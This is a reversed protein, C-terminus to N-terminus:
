KMEYYPLKRIWPAVFLLKEAKRLASYYETM